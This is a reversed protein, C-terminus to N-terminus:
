SDATINKFERDFQKQERKYNRRTQRAQKLCRKQRASDYATLILVGAVIACNAYSKAENKTM